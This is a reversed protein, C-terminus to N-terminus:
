AVTVFTPTTGVGCNNNKMSIKVYGGLASWHESWSNQIITYKDGDPGTGYGVAFVQHDLDKQQNGCKDSYFIGDEYFYFSPLTADIAVSLPGEFALADTLNAIAQENTVTQNMSNYQNTVHTCSVLQTGAEVEDGTWPNTTMNKDIAYHCFGDQNRYGGYSEAEAWKGDNHDLLWRYGLYDTGGGCAENGLVWTCDLLNGTSMAVLKNHKKAHAATAAATAGFSWCSGCTGQSRVPMVRGAGDQGGGMSKSRWDVADPAAGGNMTYVGCVSGDAAAAKYGRVAKREADTWDAMHNVNTTYSLGLRNHANIFRVNRHFIDSRMRHEPSGDAYDKGFREKFRGFLSDRRARGRPFIMELDHLANSRTIREGSATSLRTPGTPINNSYCPMGSPPAFATHDVKSVADFTVYSLIYEDYHSGGLVVNHGYKTAFQVPTGDHASVYFKYTGVYGEANPLEATSNSGAVPTVEGYTFTWVDCEIGDPYARNSHVTETEKQLEFLSTDPFLNVLSTSGNQQLCTMKDFVPVVTYAMDPTYIYVDAGSYYSVKMSGAEQDVEARLQEVLDMVPLGFDATVVYASPPEFAKTRDYSLGCEDRYHKRTAAFSIGAALAGVLVALLLAKSPTCSSQKEDGRRQVSEDIPVYADSSSM